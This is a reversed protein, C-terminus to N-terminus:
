RKRPRPLHKSSVPEILRTLVMMEQICTMHVYVLESTYNSLIDALNDLFSRRHYESDGEDSEDDSRYSYMASLIWTLSWHICTSVCVCV